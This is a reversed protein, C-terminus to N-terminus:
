RIFIDIRAALFGPHATLMGTLKYRGPELKEEWKASFSLSAGTILKEEGLVQAFM